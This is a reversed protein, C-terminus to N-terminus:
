DAAGLHPLVHALVEFDNLLLLRDVGIATRLEGHVLSWPSNTLRVTDGVVPAAVAVAAATPRHPVRKLFEAVVAELSPFEGCRFSAPGSVQLTALDAIALRANTGGIDAVLATSPRPPSTRLAENAM